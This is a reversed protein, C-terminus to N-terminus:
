LPLAVDLEVVPRAHDARYNFGIPIFDPRNVAYGMSCVLCCQRVQDWEDRTLLDIGALGMGAAARCFDALPITRYPWRCASQKLRGVGLRPSPSASGKLATDHRAWAEAQPGLAAAGLLRVADRRKM